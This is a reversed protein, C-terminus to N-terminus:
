ESKVKEFRLLFLDESNKKVKNYTSWNNKDKYWELYHNTEINYVYYEGNETKEWAWRDATYQGGVGIGNYGPEMGLAQGDRLIRFSGDKRFDLEWICSAPYETLVTGKTHVQEGALYHKSHVRQSLAQRYAPNWIVYEGDSLGKAPLLLLLLVVVAAVVAAAAGLLWPWRAKKKKPRMAPPLTEPLRGKLDQVLSVLQKEMGEAGNYHQHFRLVFRFRRTLECPELFLTYIPLEQQDAEGLERQVWKSEMAEASLLLLFAKSSEIAHPIEDTFDQNGHIDVPAFWCQLGNGELYRKVQEAKELDAGCYSIFVDYM